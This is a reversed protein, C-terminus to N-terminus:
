GAAMQPLQAPPAPPPAATRRTRSRRKEHALCSACIGTTWRIGTPYLALQWKALPHCWGCHWLLRRPNM